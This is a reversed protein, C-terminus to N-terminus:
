SRLKAYLRRFEKRGQKNLSFAVTPIYITIPKDKTDTFVGGIQGWHVFERTAVTVMQLYDEEEIEAIYNILVPRTFKLYMSQLNMDDIHYIRSPMMSIEKGNIIM